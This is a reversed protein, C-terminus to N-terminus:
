HGVLILLPAPPLVVEGLLERLAGEGTLAGSRCWNGKGARFGWCLGLRLVLEVMAGSVAFPDPFGLVRSRGRCGPTRFPSHVMWGAWSLALGRLGPMKLGGRLGLPLVVGWGRVGVWLLCCLGRRRRGAAALM